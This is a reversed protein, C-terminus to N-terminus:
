SMSHIAQLQKGMVFHKFTLDIGSPNCITRFFPSIKRTNRTETKDGLCSMLSKTSDLFGETKYIFCDCTEEVEQRDTKLPFFAQLMPFDVPQWRPSFFMIFFLNPFFYVWVSETGQLGRSCERQIAEHDNGEERRIVLYWLGWKHGRNPERFCGTRNHKNKCAISLWVSLWTYYCLLLRNMVHWGCKGGWGFQRRVWRVLYM